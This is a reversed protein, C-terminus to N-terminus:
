TPMTWLLAVRRCRPAAATLSPSKFPTAAVRVPRTPLEPLRQLNRHRSPVARFARRGRTLDHSRDGDPMRGRVGVRERPPSLLPSAGSPPDMAEAQEVARLPRETRRATGTRHTSPRIRALRSPPLITTSFVRAQGGAALLPHSATEHQTLISLRPRRNACRGSTATAFPDILTAVSHTTPSGTPPPWGGVEAALAAVEDMLEHYTGGERYWEVITFEPNHLPGVEGHRFSRTIQFTFRDAALLWALCALAFVHPRARFRSRISICRRLCRPFPPAEWYGRDTLRRIGALLENRRRLNALATPGAM